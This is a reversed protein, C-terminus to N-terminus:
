PVAFLSELECPPAEFSWSEYTIGNDDFLEALLATEALDERSDQYVHGNDNAILGVIAHGCYDYDSVMLEYAAELQHRDYVNISFVEQSDDPVCTLYRYGKLANHSFEADLHDVRCSYGARKALTEGASDLAPNGSNPKKTFEPRPLTQTEANSGTLPPEAEPDDFLGGIWAGILGLLVLTPVLIIVFLM